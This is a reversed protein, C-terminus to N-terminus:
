SKIRLCQEHLGSCRPLTILFRDLCLKPSYVYALRPTNLHRQFRVTRPEADPAYYSYLGTAPTSLQYVLVGGMRVPSISHQCYILYTFQVPLAEFGLPVYTQRPIHELADWQMKLADRWKFSANCPAARLRPQPQEGGHTHVGSLTRSGQESGNLVIDQSLQSLAVVYSFLVEDCRQPHVGLM